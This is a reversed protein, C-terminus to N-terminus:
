VPRGYVRRASHNKTPGQVEATLIAAFRVHSQMLGGGRGWGIGERGKKVSDLVIDLFFRINALSKFSLYLPPVGSQYLPWVIETKEGRHPYGLTFM